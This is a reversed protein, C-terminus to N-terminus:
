MKFIKHLLGCCCGTKRESARKRILPEKEAKPKPNKSTPFFNSLKILPREELNPKPKASARFLNSTRDIVYKKGGLIKKVQANYPRIESAWKKEALIDCLLSKFVIQQKEKYRECLSNLREQFVDPTQRIENILLMKLINSRADFHKQRKRKKEKFMSIYSKFTVDFLSGFGQKENIKLTFKKNCEICAYLINGFTKRYDTTTKQDINSAGIESSKAFRDKYVDKLKYAKAIREISPIFFDTDDGATFNSIKFNEKDLAKFVKLLLTKAVKVGKKEVWTAMEASFTGNIEEIAHQNFYTKLRIPKETYFDTIEIPKISLEQLMQKHDAIIRAFRKQLQKDIPAVAITRFDRTSCLPYYPFNGPRLDAKTLRFVEYGKRDHTFKNCSFKMSNRHLYILCMDLMKKYDPNAKDVLEDMCDTYDCLLQHLNPAKNISEKVFTNNGDKGYIYAKREGNVVLINNTMKNQKRWRTIKKNENAAFIELECKIPQKPLSNNNQMALLEQKDDLVAVVLTYSDKCKNFERLHKIYRRAVNFDYTYTIEDCKNSFIDCQTNQKSQNRKIIYIVKGNKIDGSYIRSYIQMDNENRENRLRLVLHFTVGKTIGYDELTRNNKLQKGAFILRQQYFPIKEKRWIKKKIQLITYSSEVELTITKGTLTKVFIQM